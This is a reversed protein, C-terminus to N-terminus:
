RKTWSGSHIEALLCDIAGLHLKFETERDWHLLRASPQLSACLVHRRASPDQVFSMAALFEVFRSLHLDGLDESDRTINM